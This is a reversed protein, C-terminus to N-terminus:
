QKKKAPPAGKAAASGAAESRATKKAPAPAPPASAPGGAAGGGGQLKQLLIALGPTPQQAQAAQLQALPLEARVAAALKADASGLLDGITTAARNSQVAFSALQGKLQALLAAGFLAPAPM